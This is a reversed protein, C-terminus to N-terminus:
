PACPRYAGVPLYPANGCEFDVFGGAVLLPEAFDVRYDFIGKLIVILGDVVGFGPQHMALCGEDVPAFM